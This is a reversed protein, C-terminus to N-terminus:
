DTNRKKPRNSGSPKMPSVPRKVLPVVNQKQKGNLHLLIVKLEKESLKRFDRTGVPLRDGKLAPKMSLATLEYERALRKQAFTSEQRVKIFGLAILERLARAGTANSKRIIAGADRTAMAIQGNNRGNYLTRMHFYVSRANPSLAKYALCKYEWDEIRLYRPKNEKKNNRM